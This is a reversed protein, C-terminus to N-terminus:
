CSSGIIDFNLVHWALLVSKVFHWHHNAGSLCVTGSDLLEGGSILPQLIFNATLKKLSSDWHNKADSAADYPTPRSPFFWTGTSTGGHSCCLVNKRLISFPHISINKATNHVHLHAYVRHYSETPPPRKRPWLTETSPIISNENFTTISSTPNLVLQECKLDRRQPLCRRRRSSAKHFKM